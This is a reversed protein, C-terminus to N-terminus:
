GSLWAGVGALATTGDDAGVSKALDAISVVRLVARWAAAAMARAIACPGACAEPPTALPGRQRIETCV